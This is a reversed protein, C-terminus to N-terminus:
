WGGREWLQESVPQELGVYESDRPSFVAAAQELGSVTAWEWVM